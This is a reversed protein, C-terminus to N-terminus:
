FGACVHHAAGPRACIDAALQAGAAPRSESAALEQECSIGGAGEVLMGKLAHVPARRGTPGLM